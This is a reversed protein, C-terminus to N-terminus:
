RECNWNQVQMTTNKDWLHPLRREESASSNVSCVRSRDQVVSILMEEGMAVSAPATLVESRQHLTQIEVCAVGDAARTTCVTETADSDM